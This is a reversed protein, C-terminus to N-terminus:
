HMAIPGIGDVPEPDSKWQAPLAAPRRRHQCSFRLYACGYSVCQQYRVLADGNWGKGMGGAAGSISTRTSCFYHQGQPSQDVAWVSSVLKNVTKRIYTQEKGSFFVFVFFCCVFIHEEVEVVVMFIEKSSNFVFGAVHFFNKFLFIFMTQQNLQFRVNLICKLITKKGSRLKKKINFVSQISDCSRCSHFPKNTPEYKTQYIEM